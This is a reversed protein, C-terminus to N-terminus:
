TPAERESSSMSGGEKESRSNLFLLTCQTSSSSSSSSLCIPFISPPFTLRVSASWLTALSKKGEFKDSNEDSIVQEREEDKPFSRWWWSSSRQWENGSIAEQSIRRTRIGPSTMGKKNKEFHKTIIILLLLLFFIHQWESNWIVPRWVSTWIRRGNRKMENGEGWKTERRKLHLSPHSIVVDLQIERNRSLYKQGSEGGISMRKMTMENSKREKSMRRCGEKRKMRGRKWRICRRSIEIVLFTLTQVTMRWWLWSRQRGPTRM